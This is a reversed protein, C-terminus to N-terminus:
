ILQQISLYKEFLNCTVTQSNIEIGEDEFHSACKYTLCQKGNSIRQLRTAYQRMPELYFREIWAMKYTMIEKVIRVKGGIIVNETVALHQNAATISYFENNSDGCLEDSLFICKGTLEDPRFLFCLFILKDVETETLLYYRQHDILRQLSPEDTISLVSCISKLYYMLKAKPDNSITVNVGTRKIGVETNSLIAAM